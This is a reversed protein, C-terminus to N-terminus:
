GSESEKDRGEIQDARRAYEEQSVLVEKKKLGADSPRPIRSQRLNSDKGEARPTQCPGEMKVTGEKVNKTEVEKAADRKAIQDQSPREILLVALEELNIM